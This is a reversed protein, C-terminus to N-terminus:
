FRMGGTLLFILAKVTDPDAFVLQFRADAGVYMNESVDYLLAAGPAISLYTSSDSVTGIPTAVSIGINALGLGIEPRITLKDMVVNYGGEVGLEWVNVDDEGLYYVFRGGIYVGMDLSYGGNLGFGLGWPNTSGDELDLGYGLLLGASIPKKGSSAPAADSADTSAAMQVDGEEPTAAAEEAAPTEEPAALAEDQAAATSALGCFAFVTILRLIRHNM